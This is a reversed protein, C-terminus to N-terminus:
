LIMMTGNSLSLLIARFFITQVARSQTLVFLNSFWNEQGRKGSKDTYRIENQLINNNFGWSAECTWTRDLAIIERFSTQTMFLFGKM